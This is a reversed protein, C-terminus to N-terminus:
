RSGGGVPMLPAARSDPRRTRTTIARLPRRLRPPPPPPMGPPPRLVNRQNGWAPSAPRFVAASCKESPSSREHKVGGGMVEWRKVCHEKGGMAERAHWRAQRTGYSGLVKMADCRRGGEYHREGMAEWRRLASEWRREDDCHREGM